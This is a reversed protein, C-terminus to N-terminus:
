KALNVGSPLPTYRTVSRQDFKLSSYRISARFGAAAGRGSDRAMGHPTSAIPIAGSPDCTATTNLSSPKLRTSNNFVRVAFSSGSAKGLPTTLPTRNGRRRLSM